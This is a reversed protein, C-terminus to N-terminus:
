LEEGLALRARAELVVMLAEDAPIVAIRRSNNFRCTWDEAVEQAAEETPWGARVRHGFELYPWDSGSCDPVGIPQLNDRADYIYWGRIDDKM